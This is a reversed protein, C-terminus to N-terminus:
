TLSTNLVNEFTNIVQFHYKGDYRIQMLRQPDTPKANFSLAVFGMTRRLNMEVCPQVKLRGGDSVVMMDVGLPGEYFDSISESLIDTIERALLDILEMSVYKSLMSRKDAESAIINGMYAGNYTKFLSLGAYEVGASSSRFELAFDKVKNYLPEQMVGGQRQIINQAWNRVQQNVTTVYRIGRGSSSWPAKLVFPPVLAELEALSTIYRSKGVLDDSLATLRPLLHESAWRRNSAERISNIVDASPLLWEQLGWKKLQFRLAADWGWVSLNCQSVNSLDEATIFVVDHMYRRLHRASELAGEIDDVLVADGDEAWLAPLFGVDARLERAAHPPTFRELNAALSIDHEPNFIHLRM